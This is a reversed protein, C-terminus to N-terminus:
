GAIANLKLEERTPIQDLRVECERALAGRHSLPDVVITLHASGRFGTDFLIQYIYYRSKQRRAAVIENPTLRVPGSKVEIFRAVRSVDPNAKFAEREAESIFSLCDCGYAHTGQLRSVQIPFRGESEEFLLAWKEADSPFTTDNRTGSGSTAGGIRLGVTWGGRGASSEFELKTATVATVQRSSSPPPLTVSTPTAAPRSAEHESVAPGGGVSVPMNVEGQESRLPEMAAALAAADVGFTDDASEIEASVAAILQEVEEPTHNSLLRRLQLTRLSDSHATLLKEFDSGSQLEFLEALGDSMAAAARLFVEDENESIDVGILLTDGDLLYKGPELQGAFLKTGLSFELEAKLVIRLTLAELRRLRQTEISNASRFAKIFPLSAVFRSRLLEAIIGKEEVVHVIALSFDQKSLPKVGFRKEVDSASRRPPVDILALHDRAAVPFNDRDLYLASGVPEWCLAGDKRVQVEGEAFFRAAAERTTDPSFEEIELIQAYLRRVTDHGPDRSKLASLLRYIQVEGLDSIGQPVHAHVLGRLWMPRTLGLATEEAEGPPLPPKFLASLRGPNIMAEAPAAPKGGVVALWSHSLLAARVLDPIPGAYPKFTANGSRAHLKTEFAAPRLIDFRPDLALWALIAASPASSLIGELGAIWLHEASWSAGWRLEGRSITRRFNGESVEFNDPLAALVSARMSPPVPQQIDAPWINVSLWRFFDALGPADAPLGNEEPTGLLRQPQAAYLASLIPGNGGYPQSLHLEGADHWLGDAGIVETRGSPSFADKAVTQRLGFLAGILERRIRDPDSRRRNLMDAAQRRLSTIVGNANFEHIGFGALKDFRERATGGLGATIRSWLEPHLFKARAWRPLTPPKGSAPLPFCSNTPSLPRDTVDLLLERDHLAVPLTKAIGVIVRAREGLTLSLTKLKKVIEAPDISSVELRELTRRDSETKCRALTRFLRTPLYQGYDSPGLATQGAPVNNGGYTPILPLIRAAKYVEMEFLKLPDPFSESRSLLAIPDAIARCALLSHLFDAYFRGLALLVGINVESNANLSKRHSDLELTAHFLAPFPLKVSTPFYCHLFGPTSPPGARLAIALEYPRRGEPDEPDPVSGKRRQCMWEQSSRKSDTVIEIAFRDKGLMTKTWRTEPRDDIQMAIEDLTAVFLLFDPRFELLQEMAQKHAKEDGFAAVVVTDFGEFRLARARKMLAGIAESALNELAAGTAPFPLIPAIPKKSARVLANINPAISALRAVERRAHTRSFGIELAGSTIFPEASWNLLARFGLGKAGILTAQRDPKDSTHATMLSRIGGPRFPMGTNAVCLGEASVEIRVRGHGGQEAAADAANQVLELLERGAYDRATSKEGNAHGKLWDPKACYGDETERLRVALWKHWASADPPM